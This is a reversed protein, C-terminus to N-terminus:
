KFRPRTKDDPEVEVSHNADVKIAEEFSRDEFYSNSNIRIQNRSNNLPGLGLFSQNEGILSRNEGIFSRNDGAFSRNDGLFSRNESALHHHSLFSSNQNPRSPEIVSNNLSPNHDMYSANPRLYNQSRDVRSVQIPDLMSNADRVGAENGYNGSVNLGSRNGGGAERHSRNVESKFNRNSTELNMRFSSNVVPDRQASLVSNNFSNNNLKMKPPELAFINEEDEELDEINMAQVPASIETKQNFHTKMISPVESEDIVKTKKYIKKSEKMKVMEKHEKQQETMEEYISDLYDQLDKYMYRQERTFMEEDCAGCIIITNMCAQMSGGFIQAVYASCLMSVIGVFVPAVLAATDQGAPTRDALLLLTLTVVTGALTMTMKVLFMGFDGAKAPVFIRNRNRQILYFSKRAAEFYNEGFLALFIYSYKSFYRLWKQHCTMCYCCRLMCDTCGPAKIRFISAISKYTTLLVQPIKFLTSLLSGRVVSGMHYRVILKFGRWLPFYLSSRERTFYWVSVAASLVFESFAILFAIWWISMIVNYILFYKETESYEIMKAKGGPINESTKLSIVGTSMTFIIILILFWIVAGGLLLQMLPYFFIQKLTHFPQTALKIIGISLKITKVKCIIVIPYLVTLFGIIFICYLLANSPPTYCYEPDLSGDGQCLLNYTIKYAEYFLYIIFLLLVQNSIISLTM